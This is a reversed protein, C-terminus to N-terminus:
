LVKEEVAARERERERERARERERGRQTEEQTEGERGRRPDARGPTLSDRLRSVRRQAGTDRRPSAAGSM